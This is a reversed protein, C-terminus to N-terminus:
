KLKRSNQRATKTALSDVRETYGMMGNEEVTEHYIDKFPLNPMPKKSKFLFAVLTDAPPNRCRRDSMSIYSLQQGAKLKGKYVKMVIGRFIKIALYISDVRTLKIKVVDSSKVQLQSIFSRSPYPEEAEDPGTAPAAVTDRIIADSVVPSAPVIATDPTKNKKKNSNSNCSIMLLSLFVAIYFRKIM